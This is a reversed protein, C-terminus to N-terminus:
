AKSQDTSAFEDVPIAPNPAEPQTRSNPVVRLRHAKAAANLLQIKSATITTIMMCLAIEDEFKVMWAPVRKNIVKATPVALMDLEEPSYELYEKAFEPTVKMKRSLFMTQLKSLSVYLLKCSDPAIVNVNSPVNAPASAGVERAVEPDSILERIKAKSKARMGSFDIKGDATLNWGITVRGNENSKEATRDSNEDSADLVDNKYVTKPEIEAKKANQTKASGQRTKM